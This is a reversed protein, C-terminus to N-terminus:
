RHKTLEKKDKLLWNPTAGESLGEGVGLDPDPEGGLQKEKRIAYQMTSIVHKIPLRKWQITLESLVPVMDLKNM